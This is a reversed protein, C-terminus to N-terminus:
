AQASYAERVRQAGLSAASARGVPDACLRELERALARVDGAPVLVGAGGGLAEPLEGVASALVCRGAAAAELAVMPLGEALSPIAVVDAAAYLRRMDPVFGLFRVPLGQAATELKARLPGDGALLTVPPKAMRRLAEILVAHGKEPSLRAPVLLLPETPTVALDLRAAARESDPVAAPMSVGNPIFVIRTAPAWFRLTRELSRSVVAVAACANALVRGVSEYLSL